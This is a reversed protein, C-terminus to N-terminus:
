GSRRRRWKRPSSWEYTAKAFRRARQEEAVSKIQSEERAHQYFPGASFGRVRDGPHAVAPSCGGGREKENTVGMM